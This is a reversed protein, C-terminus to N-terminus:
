AVTSLIAETEAATQRISEVGDLLENLQGTLEQPSQMTVINDAILQFSNEILDLQGRAVDLYRRIERMKELRKLIIALNRKALEVPQDGSRGTEVEGELRERDADIADVDVSRLYADYRVSTVAMDIFADVLRETKTLETRLLDGTFSPNQAALRHIEAQRAMLTDVRKREPPALLALRERREEALLAQRVQEFRPDWLLHRLRKSDPAYLLWLSELGVAMIALLPNLTLGAAALMGGFLTLNYPNAFAYKLYPRKELFSAKAVDKLSGVIASALPPPPPPPAPEAPGPAGAGRRVIPPPVVAPRAPSKAPAAKPRDPTAM